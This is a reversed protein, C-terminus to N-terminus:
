FREDDEETVRREGITNVSEMLGTSEKKEVLNAYQFAIAVLLISYLLQSIFSGLIQGVITLLQYFISSQQAIIEDSSSFFIGAGAVLTFPFVLILSIISQLIVVVLILGLTSLYNGSVLSFCRSFADGFSIKEKIQIIFIFSLAALLIFGPIIFFLFGIPILLSLVIVGLIVKWVDRKTGEWVESVTPATLTDTQMYLVLYQYVVTIVVSTALLSLLTTISGQSLIEMYGDFPFGEGISTPGELGTNSNGLGSLLTMQYIGAFIATILIVPGAIYLLCKFLPSFNQRLFQFTVNIKDGLDRIQYFNIKQHPEM